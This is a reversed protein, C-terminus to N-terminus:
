FKYALSVATSFPTTTVGNIIYLGNTFLAKNLNVDIFLQGITYGIGITTNVTKLAATKTTNVTTDLGKVKTETKTTNFTYVSNIGFRAKLNKVLKSEVGVRNVINLDTKNTTINTADDTYMGGNEIGNLSTIKTAVSSIGPNLVVTTNENIQAIIGPAIELKSTINDIKEKNKIEYEAKDAVLFNTYVSKKSLDTTEFSVALGIKKNTDHVKLCRANIEIGENGSQYEKKTNLAKEGSQTETIGTDRMKLKLGVLINKVDDSYGFGTILGYNLTGEKAIQTVKTGTKNELDTVTNVALNFGLGLRVNDNISKAISVSPILNNDLGKVSISQILGFFPSKLTLRAADPLTLSIRNPNIGLESVYKALDAGDPLIPCSGLTNKRTTSALCLSACVFLIVTSMLLNKKM